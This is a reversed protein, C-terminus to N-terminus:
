NAIKVVLFFYILTHFSTLGDKVLFTVHESHGAVEICPVPTAQCVVFHSGVLRTHALKNLFNFWVTSLLRALACYM